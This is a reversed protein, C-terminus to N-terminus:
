GGSDACHRFFRADDRGGLREELAGVGALGREAREDVGLRRRLPALVNGRQLAAIHERRQASSEADVLARLAAERADARELLAKTPAVVRPEEPM